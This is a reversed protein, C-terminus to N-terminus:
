LINNVKEELDNQRFPKPLFDNAGLKFSKKREVEDSTIMIVPLTSHVRDARLIKLMEFGNMNPMHIDLLVADVETTELITLAEKGDEAEVINIQKNKSLMAHILKRNFVDDEAVLLTIEKLNKLM